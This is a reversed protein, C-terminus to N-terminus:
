ARQLCNKLGCETVICKERSGCLGLEWTLSPLFLSSLAWVFTQGGRRVLLFGSCWGGGGGGGWPARAEADVALILHQMIDGFRFHYFSLKPWPTVISLFHSGLGRAWCEQSGVTRNCPQRLVQRLVVAQGGAQVVVAGCGDGVHWDPLWWQMMCRHPYCPCSGGRVGTICQNCLVLETQVGTKWSPLYPELELELLGLTGHLLLPRM